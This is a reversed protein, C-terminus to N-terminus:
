REGRDLDVLELASPGPLVTGLEILEEETAPVTGPPAKIASVLGAAAFKERARMTAENTFSIDEAIELTVQVDGAPVDDPIEVLLRRDETLKGKLHITAMCIGKDRRRLGIKASNVANV